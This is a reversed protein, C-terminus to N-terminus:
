KIGLVYNSCTEATLPLWCRAVALGLSLFIHLLYQYAMLSIEDKCFCICFIYTALTFHYLISIHIIYLIYFNFHCHLLIKNGTRSNLVTSQLTYSRITHVFQADNKLCFIFIEVLM